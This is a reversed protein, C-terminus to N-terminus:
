KALLEAARADLRDAERRAQEALGRWYAAQNEPTNDRAMALRLRYLEPTQFTIPRAM